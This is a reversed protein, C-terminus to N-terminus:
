TRTSDVERRILVVLLMVILMAVASSLFAIFYGGSADFIMGGAIPGIASGTGFGVDLVGLITGIRGLGFSDSIIATMGPTMGGYGFGYALGFLYFAWMDKAWILWLIAGAQLIACFIASLRRGGRDSVAGMSVRGFINAVGIFSLVSAGEVPSYGMDTVYPVLHTLVLFLSAGFLFWLAMIIWLSRTKLAQALSLGVVRIDKVNNDTELREARAGDPLAGIESPSGKLLFSLPISVAWITLGAILCAYRWGFQAILFGVYPSMLMTGTGVGSSAIGLALGRKKDFWRAVTSMSVVYMGGSGMAMLFSYTFFVQWLATTQSTLLMSLGTIVAMVFVVKKPGFRDLAWGGLIAFFSGLIMYLSFISSTAARSLQFESELSKFFVGFSLRIGWLTTGAVLFTAVVVWGYFFKRNSSLNSEQNHDKWRLVRPTTGSTALAPM